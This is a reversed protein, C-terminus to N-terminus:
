PGDLQALRLPHVVVQAQQADGFFFQGRQEIGAHLLAQAIGVLHGLWGSLRDGAVAFM